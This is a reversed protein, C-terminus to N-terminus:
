CLTIQPQGLPTSRLVWTHITAQSLLMRPAQSEEAVQTSEGFGIKVM